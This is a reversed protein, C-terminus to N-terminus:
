DRVCEVSYGCCFAALRGKKHALFYQSFFLLGNLARWCSIIAIGGNFIDLVYWNKFNQFIDKAAASVQVRIPDSPHLQAISPFTLPPLRDILM